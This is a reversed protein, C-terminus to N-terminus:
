TVPSIRLDSYVFEGTSCVIKIAPAAVTFPMKRAKGDVIALVGVGDYLLSFAVERGSPAGAPQASNAGGAARLTFGLQPGRQAPAATDPFVAYEFGAWGESTAGTGATSSIVLRTLPVFQDSRAASAARVRGTVVFPPRGAPITLDSFRNAPTDCDYRTGAAASDQASAPIVQLVLAAGLSL